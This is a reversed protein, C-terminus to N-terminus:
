HDFLQKTAMAAMAAKQGFKWVVPAYADYTARATGCFWARVGDDLRICTLLLVLLVAINIRVIVDSMAQLRCVDDRLYFVSGHVRQIASALENSPVYDADSEESESGSGSGDEDEENEESEGEENEEPDGSEYASGDDADVPLAYGSSKLEARVAPIQWIMNMVSAPIAQDIAVNDRHEFLACVDNDIGIDRRNNIIKRIADQLVTRREEDPVALSLGNFITNIRM